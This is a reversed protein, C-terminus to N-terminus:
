FTEDEYELEDKAEDEPPVEFGDETSYLIGQINQLIPIAEHDGEPQGHEALTMEINDMTEQVNIEIERLKGFYFDREKELGDVTLKLEAIQKNLDIIMNASEPNASRGGRSVSRAAPTKTAKKTGSSSSVRGSAMTPKPTAGAGKRRAVADYEGGPYNLDWYKKVWQMFELNDQLKCKVLRDVHVIKDVKHKKFISQLIKFNNIYEYELKADHKIKSCPVDGFISDMIQCYAAGTGAQEIKTYNTQLLDNMWALLETRSEGM